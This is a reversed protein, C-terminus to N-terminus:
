ELEMIESFLAETREGEAFRKELPMIVLVLAPNGSVGIESYARKIFALHKEAREWDM